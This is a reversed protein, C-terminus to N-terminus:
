RVQVTTQQSRVCSRVGMRSSRLVPERGKWGIELFQFCLFYFNYKCLLTMINEKHSSAETRPASASSLRAPDRKEPRDSRPPSSWRRGSRIAHDNRGPFAIRVLLRRGRSGPRPGGGCASGRRGRSRVGRGGRRAGRRSAARTSPGSRGVRSSTGRHDERGSAISPGRRRRPVARSWRLPRSWDGGRSKRRRRSAPGAVRRPGSGALRFCTRLDISTPGESAGSAQSGPFCRVNVCCDHGLGRM